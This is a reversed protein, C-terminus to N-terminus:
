RSRPRPAHRTPTSTRTRRSTITAIARQRQFTAVADGTKEGSWKNAYFDVKGAADTNNAMYEKMADDPNELLDLAAPKVGSSYLM